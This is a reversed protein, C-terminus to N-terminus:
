MLERRLRNGLEPTIEQGSLLRVGEKISAV